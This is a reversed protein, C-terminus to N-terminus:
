SFYLRRPFTPSLIVTVFRESIPIGYHVCYGRLNRAKPARFQFEEALSSHTRDDGSRRGSRTNDRKKRAPSLAVGVKRAKNDSPSRYVPYLDRDAAPGRKAAGEQM